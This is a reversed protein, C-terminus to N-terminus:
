RRGSWCRSRRGSGPRQGGQQPHEIAARRVDHDHIDVGAEVAAVHGAQDRPPHALGPQTGLRPGPTVATSSRNPRCPDDTFESWRARGFSVVATMQGRRERARPRPSSPVPVSRRSGSDPGAGRSLWLPRYPVTSTMAPERPMAPAAASQPADASRDPAPSTRTAVGASTWGATALKSGDSCSRDAARRRAVSQDVEGASLGVEVSRISGASTTATPGPSPGTAVIDALEDPEQDDLGILRQDDVGVAQVGQDALRLEEGPQFARHDQRRMGALKGPQGALGHRGHLGVADLM